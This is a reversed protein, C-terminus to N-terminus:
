NANSKIIIGKTLLSEVADEITKLEEINKAIILKYAFKYNKAIKVNESPECPLLFDIDKTNFGIEILLEQEFNALLDYDFEGQNSLANLRLNLEKEKKVDAINVYVVPVKKYGMEKATKLRFHGGIIINKRNENSNVIIPDVLGFKEISKELQKISEEPFKRPNYDAPKLSEIDCYHINIKEHRKKQNSKIKVKDEKDYTM